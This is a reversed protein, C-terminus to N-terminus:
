NIKIFKTGDLKFNEEFAKGLWSIEHVAHYRIRLTTKKFTFDQLIDEFTKNYSRASDSLETIKYRRANDNKGKPIDILVFDIQDIKFHFTQLKNENLQYLACAEIKINVAKYKGQNVIAFCLTNDVIEINNKIKLMPRISFLLGYTIVAVVIGSLVSLLIETLM